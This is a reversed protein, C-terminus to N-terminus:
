RVLTQFMDSRSGSLDSARPVNEELYTEPMTQVHLEREGSKTAPLLWLDAVLRGCHFLLIFKHSLSLGDFLKQNGGFWTDLRSCSDQERWSSPVVEM